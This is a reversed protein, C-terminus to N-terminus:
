GLKVEEDWEGPVIQEEELADASLVRPEYGSKDAATMRDVVKCARRKGRTWAWRERSRRRGDPTGNM